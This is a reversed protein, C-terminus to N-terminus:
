RRRGHLLNRLAVQELLGSALLMETMRISDRYTLRQLFLRHEREEAERYRQPQKIM